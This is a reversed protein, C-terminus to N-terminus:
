MNWVWIGDSKNSKKELEAESEVKVQVLALDQLIVNGLIRGIGELSKGKAEPFLSVIIAGM